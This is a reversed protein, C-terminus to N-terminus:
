LFDTFVEFRHNLSSITQLKVRSKLAGNQSNDMCFFIRKARSHVLAMSCMVCPEKLMYIYYGTCLYPGEKKDDDDQQKESKVYFKVSPFKEKLYPLVEEPIGPFEGKQSGWAGGDQTKAVNDIALMASHQMPHQQRNDFAVAVICDIVPDVVITTNIHKFMNDLPFEINKNVAYWKTVEFVMEMYQRHLSLEQPQFMMNEALKEFYTNPHFNCPWLKKVERYQRNVKPPLSPVQVEKFYDFVNKLEPVYKEIYDQIFTVDTLYNTPCLIIDKRQVRKLHQLGKLPIKENLLLIAKSIDQVNTIHGVYVDVLPLPLDFENGLVAKLNKQSQRINQLCEDITATFINIDNIKPKKVPPEAENSM